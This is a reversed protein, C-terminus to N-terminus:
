QIPAYTYKAATFLLNQCFWGITLSTGAYGESVPHSDVEAVHDVTPDLNEDDLYLGHEFKWNHGGGAALPHEATTQLLATRM